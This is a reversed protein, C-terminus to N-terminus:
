FIIKQSYNRNSTKVNLIVFNSEQNVNISVSNGRRIEQSNLITGNIDYLMIQCDENDNAIIYISRNDRNYSIQAIEKKNEEITTSFDDGTKHLNDGWEISWWNINFGGNQAYLALTQQGAELYVTHRQTNWNQWDGTNQVNTIHLDQENQSLILIGDSNPSALRYNITYIGSYPLNVNYSMWDEADIWGVSQGGENCDEIEVGSMYDFDEAEIKQYFGDQHNEGNNKPQIDFWNINFGGVLANIGIYYTGAPLYITNSITTWNQWGGTNPIDIEVLNVDGADKDLRLRAGTIESAVRFDVKYEGSNQVNVKYTMWDGDEISGVNQGGESCQETSVGSMECYNEAEIKGPMNVEECTTPQNTNGSDSPKYVRVYDVELRRPWINPDVGQAGGWDGGVALNFIIHFDHTFPYAEWGTWDNHVTFYKHDDLFFDIRDEFWEIAYVHFNDEVDAMYTSGTRQNGIRFFYDKSHVSGHVVGKDYGVYEMIDIEGSNPWYYSSIENIGYKTIDEPMMWFAPWTGWGSPLKMRAEVRGYTWHGKGASNIRASSYESGNHWDRHAEIVLVGNEVRCNEWRYPVYRQLENNVTAPAWDEFNWKTEDPFGTYNFEDSWVLEWNQSSVTQLVSLLFLLLLVKIIKM